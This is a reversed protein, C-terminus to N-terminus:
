VEEPKRNEKIIRNIREVENDVFGTFGNLKNSFHSYSINLKKAVDCRSLTCKKLDAKVMENMTM